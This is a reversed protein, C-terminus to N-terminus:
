ASGRCCAWRCARGAGTSTCGTVVLAVAVILKSALSERKTIPLYAFFEASRDGREGAIANGAFFPILIVALCIDTMAAARFFQAPAEVIEGSEGVASETASRTLSCGSAIVYPILLAIAAAILFGRQQRFDKWLLSKLHM